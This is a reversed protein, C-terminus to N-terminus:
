ILLLSRVIMFLSPADRGGPACSAAFRISFSGSFAGWYASRIGYAGGREEKERGLGLILM